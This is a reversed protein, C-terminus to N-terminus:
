STREARASTLRVDLGLQLPEALGRRAFAPSGNYRLLRLRIPNDEGRWHLHAAGPVEAGMGHLTREARASTLRVPGRVTGSGGTRESRASTIRRPQGAFGPHRRGRRALPPSGEELCKTLHKKWCEGRSRLSGSVSGQVDVRVTDEGRLCLHASAQRRTRASGCAREACASTLRVEAVSDASTLQGRRALPLSGGM